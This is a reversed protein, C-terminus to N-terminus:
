HENENEQTNIVLVRNGQHFTGIPAPTARAFSRILAGAAETFTGQFIVGAELYYDRDLKWVVTWGSKNGWDMLLSRLTSGARADWSQESQGYEVRESLSMRRFDKPATEKKKDSVKTTTEVITTTTKKLPMMGTSAVITEEAPFKTVRTTDVTTETVKQTGLEGPIAVTTYIVKEGPESDANKVEKETFLSTHAQKQAQKEKVSITGHGAPRSLSVVDEETELDSFDSPGSVLTQSFRNTLYDDSNECGTMDPSCANPDTEFGMTEIDNEEAIVAEETFAVDDSQFACAGLGLLCSVVGLGVTKQFVMRKRM